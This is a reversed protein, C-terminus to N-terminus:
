FDLSKAQPDIQLWFRAFLVSEEASDSGATYDKEAHRAAVARVKGHQPMLQAM